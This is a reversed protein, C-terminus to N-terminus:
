GRRRGSAPRRGLRPRRRHAEGPHRDGGHGPRDALADATLLVRSLGRHGALATVVQGWREDRWQGSGTLLSDANDIVILIRSREMLETLRPLFGALARVDALAPVMAFGPLDRELTRAFGALAGSIDTGPAPAESWALRAFDHEHRYALEIACASKGIREPGTFMIGTTSDPTGGKAQEFAEPLVHEIERVGAM